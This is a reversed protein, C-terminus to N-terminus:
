SRRVNMRDRDSIYLFINLEDLRLSVIIVPPLVHCIMFGSFLSVTLSLRATQAVLHIFGFHFCDNAFEIFGHNSSCCINCFVNQLFSSRNYGLSRALTSNMLPICRSFNRSESLTYIFHGSSRLNNQQRQQLVTTLSHLLAMSDYSKM